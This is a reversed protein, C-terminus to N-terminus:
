KNFHHKFVQMVGARDTESIKGAHKLKSLAEYIGQLSIKGDGHRQERIVEEVLSEQEPTLSPIHGQGVLARIEESSLSHETTSYNASSSFLGM